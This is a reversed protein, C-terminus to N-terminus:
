NRQQYICIYIYMYIYIYIYIYIIQCKLHSTLFLFIGPADPHNLRNLMQGTSEAWTTIKYNMHDLGGTLTQASLASDAQSEREEKGQKPHTRGDTALYMDNLTTARYWQKNKLHINQTEFWICLKAPCLFFIYIKTYYNGLASIQKNVAIWSSYFRLANFPVKFFDSDMEKHSIISIIISSSSIIIFFFFIRVCKSM